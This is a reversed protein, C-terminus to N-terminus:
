SIPSPPSRSDSTKPSNPAAPSIGDPSTTAAASTSPSPTPSCPPKTATATPTSGSRMNPGTCTSSPTSATGGDIVKSTKADIVVPPMTAGARVAETIAALNAASINHRPWLTEDLILAAIPKTDTM